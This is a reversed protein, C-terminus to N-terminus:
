ITQLNKLKNIFEPYVKSSNYKKLFLIRSNKRFELLKNENKIFWYIANAIELPSPNASLLIGNKETAIESNGGVDTAIIPIGYSIAEKISVPQGEFSSVNIFVDVHNNKYHEMIHVLNVQGKFIINVNKSTIESAMKKISDMLEGDGFHIWEIKIEPSFKLVEIIGKAILDVRKLAIVSSCSVIRFIDDNSPYNIIEPDDFGLYSTKIITSTSKYRNKFYNTGAEMCPFIANIKKLAISRFPIYNYRHREEFLDIGHARSIINANPYKNKLICLGLTTDSFWYTYFITNSLSLNNNKIFKEIGLYFEYSKKLYRLMVLLKRFNILMSPHLFIEHLILGRIGSKLKFLDILTNKFYIKNEAQSCGNEIIINPYYFITKEGSTIQPLIFIQDFSNALFPLEQNIFTQEAALIYPYSQTVLILNM